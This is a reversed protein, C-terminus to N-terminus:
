DGRHRRKPGRLSGEQRTRRFMAAAAQGLRLLSACLRLIFAARPLWEWLDNLHPSLISWM